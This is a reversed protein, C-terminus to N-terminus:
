KKSASYKKRRAKRQIPKRLKKELKEMNINLVSLASRERIQIAFTEDFIAFAKQLYRAALNLYYADIPAPNIAPLSHQRHLPNDCPHLNYRAIHHWTSHVCASFPSYVYNYFDICDAEEAMARTTLGSWNGLDIDTLFTARQKNAWDEIIEIYELEGPKAKRTELDAKRHEIELKAQGLGYLIFKKARDNPDRLVWAINIYVDAMARLFLPAVHGNWVSTCNALQVALTVQRALLSGVVEHADNFRLDISWKKLRSKLESQARRAFEEVINNLEHQIVRKNM